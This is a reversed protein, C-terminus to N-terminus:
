QALSDATDIVERAEEARKQLNGAILGPSDDLSALAEELNEFASEAFELACLYPSEEDALRAIVDITEQPLRWHMAIEASAQRVVSESAQEGPEIALLGIHSLLGITFSTEHNAHTKAGRRVAWQSLGALVFSRRWFAHLDVGEPASHFSTRLEAALLISKLADLGLMLVAASVTSVRGRGGFYASNAVKLVKVM